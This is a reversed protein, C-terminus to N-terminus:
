ELSDCSKIIDLKLLFAALNEDLAKQVMESPMLLSHHISRGSLYAYEQSSILKVLVRVLRRQYAKSGVKYSTNLLSIGQKNTMEKEDGKKHLSTISGKLFKKGFRKRGIGSNLAVLLLPGIVEWFMILFEVPIGDLGLVKNKGMQAAAELLEEISLEADMMQKDEALIRLKVKELIALMEEEWANDRSRFLTAFHAMAVEEM